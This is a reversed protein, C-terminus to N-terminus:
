LINVRKGMANPKRVAMQLFGEITGREAAGNRGLDYYMLGLDFEGQNSNVRIPLAGPRDVQKLYGIDIYNPNLYYIASATCDKDKIFLCGDLEIADVTFDLTRDGMDNTAQNIRRFESFLAAFKNFVSSSAVGLPPVEGCADYIDSLDQRVQALTLATPTGPDSKLARFQAVTSRDVGAYLGTNDIASALGIMSANGAFVAQNAVSGFKRLGNMLTRDFLKGLARPGANQATAMVQHGVRVNTRLGQLALTPKVIDDASYVTVDDGDNFTEVAAGTTEVDWTMNQGLVEDKALRAITRAHANFTRNVEDAIVVNLATSIGSFLVSTAM